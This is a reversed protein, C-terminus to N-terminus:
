KHLCFTCYETVSQSYYTTLKLNHVLGNDGNILISKNLFIDGIYQVAM